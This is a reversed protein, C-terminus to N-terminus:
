HFVPRRTLRRIGAGRSGFWFGATSHRGRLAVGSQRNGNWWQMVYVGRNMEDKSVGVKVVIGMAM